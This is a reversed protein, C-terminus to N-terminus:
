RDVRRHDTVLVSFRHRARLCVCARGDCGVRHTHVVQRRGLTRELKTRFTDQWLVLSHIRTHLCYTPLIRNIKTGRNSGGDHAASDSILKACPQYLGRWACWACHVGASRGVALVILNDGQHLYPVKTVMKCSSRRSLGTREGRQENATRMAGLRHSSLGRSSKGDADTCKEGGTYRTYADNVSERVRSQPHHQERWRTHRQQVM